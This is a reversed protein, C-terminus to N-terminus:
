ELAEEVRWLERYRALDHTVSLGASNAVAIGHFGDWAEDAEIASQNLEISSGKKVTTYKKCGSNSM